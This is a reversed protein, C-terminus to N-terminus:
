GWQLPADYTAAFQDHAWCGDIESEFVSMVVTEEEAAETVEIGGDKSVPQQHKLLFPLHLDTTIDPSHQNIIAQRQTGAFELKHICVLNQAFTCV